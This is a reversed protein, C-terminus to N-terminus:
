RRSDDVDKTRKHMGSPPAGKEQRWGDIVDRGCGIFTRATASSSLWSKLRHPAPSSTGFYLLVCLLVGGELLGFVVGGVRNIGGLLAIKFVVTLFHGILAFLLGVALLICLFAVASGVFQPLHILRGLTAGFSAHYTFAAWGGLVLGFLSCVERVLGKTFGKVAFALLIGWLLIDLLSM